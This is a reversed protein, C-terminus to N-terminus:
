YNIKNSTSFSGKYSLYRSVLPWPNADWNSHPYTEADADGDELKM